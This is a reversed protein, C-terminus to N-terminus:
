GAIEELYRKAAAALFGSRTYGNPKASEDIERLLSPLISVAIQVPKESTIRVPIAQYFTGDTIEIELEECNKEALRKAEKMPSPEPLEGGQKEEAKVYSLLCEEASAIADSLNDGFTDCGPLDPFSVSYTGDENPLFQAFYYKM